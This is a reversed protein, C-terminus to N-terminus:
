ERAARRFVADWDTDTIGMASLRRTADEVAAGADPAELAELARARALEALAQSMRDGTPATWGRAAEFHARTEAEDGTQAAALGRAVEVFMQDVYTGEGEADLEAAVREVAAPQRAVALAVALAAGAAKRLGISTADEFVDTLVAVAQDDRGFQLLAIGSAVQREPWNEGAPHELLTGIDFTHSAEGMALATGAAVLQGFALAEPSGAHTAVAQATAILDRAEGSDGRAVLARALTGLARLSGSHDGMVEFEDRASTAYRIAEETRGSWLRTNALLLLMMSRAWRDGEMDSSEVLTQALRDAEDMHGQQLRVWAMLGFAWALGGWDQAEEFLRVSETVRTDAEDTDGREFAIWAMNQQAWAEGRLDGLERFLGLAAAISEEASALRGRFLDTMGRLRLADAEGAREGLRRWRDVAEDLTHASELLAGEAQEVQGQVTLAAAGAWEDGAADSAKRVASVDARAADLQRLAVRARARRVRFRRSVAGDADGILRLAQDCLRAAVAPVERREVETLARDIWTLAQERVDTVVGEVPGLEDVLEAAAGFHHALPELQESERHITRAREALFAGLAAHHRAREAKTLTEYAVERVLESRFAWERGDFSLVDRDVLHDLITPLSAVAGDGLATLADISGVRGVVAAHDLVRREAGPLADLRTAVLGRLTPPLEGQAGSTAVLAALEELYFPNGGAREIVTDALAAPPASELLTTLLATAADRDLPDLHVVVLNHRAAHPIWRDEIEPRATAVLAFPLGRLHGPLRDLLDLVLPDAWHLESISLVLPRRHAINSLLGIFARVADDRARGPEVHDLPSAIGMLYLLGDTKRAVDPHDAPQRLAWAVKARSKGTAVDATDAVDVDLAHRVAAAIPWWVNAEGYPVCRGELVVAGHDRASAETLEEALRSKGIGAEGAILVTQPRRREFGMALAACLIEMERTRGVLPTRARRPRHGPPVLAELALYAVVRESRGRVDLPGVPEYRVVDSTLAYTDPGVLIQGPEAEVQLRSAVNVTDGMATYEGGARLAGVLVEGTNIGVRMRLPMETEAAHGALTRQMQLACRVAREADDEHAVPAGFLAVIADGLIKDIRGGHAGIDAVLRQFARDVVNRVHEPDVGEALSTYGVLDAFLVTVIRREEVRAGLAHGCSPCFRSGEPVPARCAPCEM